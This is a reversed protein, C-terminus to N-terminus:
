VQENISMEIAATSGAVVEVVKAERSEKGEDTFASLSVEHRGPPISDLLTETVGSIEKFHTGNLTVAIKQFNRANPVSLKIAGPKKEEAGAKLMKELEAINNKFDAIWADTEQKVIADVKGSFENLKQISATASFPQSLFLSWDFQFERLLVQLSFQTSAFRMWSRSFGYYRDFSVLAAGIAIFVYGLTPFTKNEGDIIPTILPCIAGLTALVLAIGRVWQALFRMPRRRQDYWQIQQQTNKVVWQYLTKIYAPQNEDSWEPFDQDSM